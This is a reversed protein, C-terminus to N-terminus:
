RPSLSDGHLFVDAVLPREILALFTSVAHLRAPVVLRCMALLSARRRGLVFYGSDGLGHERTITDLIM